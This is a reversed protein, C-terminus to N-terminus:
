KLLSIIPYMYVYPWLLSYKQFIYLRGVQLKLQIFKEISENELGGLFDGDM